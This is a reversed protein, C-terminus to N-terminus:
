HVGNRVLVEQLLGTLREFADRQEYTFFVVHPHNWLQTRSLAHTDEDRLRFRVWGNVYPGADQFEVASLAALLLQGGSQGSIGGMLGPRHITLRDERLEVIGSHGEATLLSGEMTEGICCARAQM